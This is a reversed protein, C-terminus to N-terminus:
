KKTIICLCPYFRISAIEGVFLPQYGDPFQLEGWHGKWNETMWQLNLTDILGMLMQRTTYVDNGGEWKAGYSTLIDEVIYFGGSKVAPFLARFSTMQQNMLHGGDDIVVDFDGGTEETFKRLFAKDAQDGIYIKTRETEFRRCTEDNDIGFLTAMPFLSEWMLTSRGNRVGIELLRIPRNRLHGINLAYAPMYGHWRKNTGTKGAIEDFKKIINDM